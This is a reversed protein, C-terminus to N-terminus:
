TQDVSGNVRNAVLTRATRVAIAAAKALSSRSKHHKKKKKKLRRRFTYIEM